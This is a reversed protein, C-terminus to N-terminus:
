KSGGESGSLLNAPDSEPEIRQVSLAQDPMGQKAAPGLEFTVRDGVAPVAEDYWNSAHFYVEKQGKIAIFGFGHAEKFIRVRGQM